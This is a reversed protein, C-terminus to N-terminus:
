DAFNSIYDDQCVEWGRIMGDIFLEKFDNDLEDDVVLYATDTGFYEPVLHVVKIGSKLTDLLECVNNTENCYRTARAYDNVRACFEEM